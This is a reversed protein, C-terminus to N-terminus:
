SQLGMGVGSYFLLLFSFAIETITAKRRKREKRGQKTQKLYPRAIYVLRAKFEHDEQQL